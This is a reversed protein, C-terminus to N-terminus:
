GLKSRLEVNAEFIDKMYARKREDFRGQGLDLQPRLLAAAEDGELEEREILQRELERATDEMEEMSSTLKALRRQLLEIESERSHAGEALARKREETTLDLSFSLIARRLDPPASKALGTDVLRLRVREMMDRKDEPSPEVALGERQARELRRELVGIEKKTAQKDELLKGHTKRLSALFSEKSQGVVRRGRNRLLSRIEGRMSKAIIDATKEDLGEVQEGLVDRLAVDLSAIFEQKDLVLMSRRAQAPDSKRQAPDPKRVNQEARPTGQRLLARVRGCAAPKLALPPAGREHYTM